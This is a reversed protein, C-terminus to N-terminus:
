SQAAIEEGIWRKKDKQIFSAEKCTHKELRRIKVM